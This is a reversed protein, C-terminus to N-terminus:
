RMSRRNMQIGDFQLDFVRVCCFALQPPIAQSFALMLRLYFQFVSESNLRQELSISCYKTFLTQKNKTLCSHPFSFCASLIKRTKWCEFAHQKSQAKKTWWNRPIATIQIGIDIVFWRLFINMDELPISRFVSVSIIYSLSYFVANSTSPCIANMIVYYYLADHLCNLLKQSDSLANM